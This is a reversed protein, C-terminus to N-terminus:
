DLQNEAFPSIAARNSGAGIQAGDLRDEGCAM